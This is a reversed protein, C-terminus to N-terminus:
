TVGVWSKETGSVGLLLLLLVFCGAVETSMWPHCRGVTTVTPHTQQVIGLEDNFYWTYWLPQGGETGDYTGTRIHQYRWGPPLPYRPPGPMGM